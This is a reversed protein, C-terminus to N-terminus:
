HDNVNEIDPLETASKWIFEFEEAYMSTWASDEGRLSTLPCEDSSRSFLYHTTLWIDDIRISSFYLPVHEFTRIQFLKRDEASLTSRIERLLREMAVLKGDLLSSTAGDEEALLALHRNTRSMILWRFAVRDRHICDTVINKLVRSKTWGFASRAMVDVNHRAGRILGEWDSQTGFDGQRVWLNELGVRRAGEVLRLTAGLERIQDDLADIRSDFPNGGVVRWVTDILVVALTALGLNLAAASAVKYLKTELVVSLVVLGGGTLIFITAAITWLRRDSKRM